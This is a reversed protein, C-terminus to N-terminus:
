GIQPLLREGVAECAHVGNEERVAVRIVDEPEVLDPTEVEHLPTRDRAVGSGIYPRVDALCEMVYEIAHWAESAANRQDLRVLDLAGELHPTRTTGNGSRWPLM